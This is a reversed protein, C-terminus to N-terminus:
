ERTNQVNMWRSEREEADKEWDRRKDIMEEYVLSEGLHFLLNSADELSHIEWSYTSATFASIFTNLYGEIEQFVKEVEALYLKETEITKSLASSYDRHAITKNRRSRFKGALEIISSLRTEAKERQGKPLKPFYKKLSSLSLNSNSRTAEPDTLRSIGLIFRDWYYRHLHYFFADATKILLEKKDPNSSIFIKKYQDLDYKLWLFDLRLQDLDDPLEQAEDM